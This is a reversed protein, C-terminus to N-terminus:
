FVNLAQRQSLPPLIIADYNAHLLTEGGQGRKLQAEEYRRSTQTVHHIGMDPEGARTKGEASKDHDRQGVFRVM